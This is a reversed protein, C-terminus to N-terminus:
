FGKVEIEGFVSVTAQAGPVGGTWVATIKHSPYLTLDCESSDNTGAATGAYFNTPDPDGKYIRCQPIQNDNNVTLAITTVRWTHFPRTPGLAAEGYGEGNLTVVAMENLYLTDM